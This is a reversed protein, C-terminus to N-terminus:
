KILCRKSLLTLSQCPDNKGAPAEMKACTPPRRVYLGLEVIPERTVRLVIATSNGTIYFYQHQIHTLFHFSGQLTFVFTLNQIHM